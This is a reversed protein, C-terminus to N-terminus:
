RDSPQLTDFPMEMEDTFVKIRNEHRVLLVPLYSRSTVSVLATPNVKHIEKKIDLHNNRIEVLEPPLNERISFKTTKCKFARQFIANRDSMKIFGIIIPRPYKNTAKFIGLRHADRVLINNVLDESLELTNVLFHKVKAVVDENKEEVHGLFHLNLRRSHAVSMVYKKSLKDHDEKLNIFDTKLSELDASITNQIEELATIKETHLTLTQNLNNDLLEIKDLIKQDTVVREATMRKEMEQMANLVLQTDMTASASDKDSKNSNSKKDNAMSNSRARTQYM